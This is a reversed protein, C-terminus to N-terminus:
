AGWLGPSFVSLALFLASIGMLILFLPLIFKLWKEWSIGALALMAMLVGSTPVISNSFGDGCTFAFVATQRKLELVDALPAMLPMTVAAQGSGSPIFFNLVSQFVLMGEAALFDPFNQLVSAAGYIVTDLIQGDTLVVEIGMAFGVVLAAVVMEEMGKVFAEAADQLSLKAVYTAIIGILFFAGGLEAMWWGYGVEDLSAFVAFGFILISAIIITLHRGNFSEQMSIDMHLDFKEGALISKSPDKRIRNGYRIVYAIAASMCVTFFVIRILIDGQSPVEAIGQAITVTFPNTTAAAFGVNSATMVLALGYIRDYGMEQSIVLFLPVLPIFEEGMGFTSGGIGIVTMLVITLIHPSDRFTNLLAQISATITGTRQLIGFVGGVMFIFFIIDARKEMGRPIASLFGILSVPTAKDEVSDGILLGKLSFHKEVTAFTGTKIVTRERGSIERVEREYNGSPILYTLISCFLIVMTLLTFVHPVKIRDLISSAM